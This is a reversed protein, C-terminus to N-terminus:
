IWLLNKLSKRQGSTESLVRELHSEIDHQCLLERHVICAYIGNGPRRRCGHIIPEYNVVAESLSQWNAGGNCGNPRVELERLPDNCTSRYDIKSTGASTRATFSGPAGHVLALLSLSLSLPKARYVYSLKRTRPISRTVISDIIDFPWSGIFTNKKRFSYCKYAKSMEDSYKRQGLREHANSLDRKIQREWKDHQQFCDPDRPALYHM